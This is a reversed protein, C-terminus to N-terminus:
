KHEIGLAGMLFKTLETAVKSDDSFAEEGCYLRLREMYYDSCYSFQLMMFLNDFFFAFFRPDADKRCVGHNQAKRILDTYILASMGEIEEALMKSYQMSGKTVEYYMRNVDKREKAHKILTHIVSNISEYLDDSKLAVDKLVAELEVLCDKVCALFLAEKDAYYKYIVGVSMGSNKAINSLSARDYGKDAFESIGAQILNSLQEDSLKKYM